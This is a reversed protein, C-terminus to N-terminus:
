RARLGGLAKILQNYLLVGIIITIYLAILALTAGEGLDFRIFAVRYIYWDLTETGAGGQTTGVIPDYIRILWMIRLLAVIVIFPRLLPLTLKRFTFWPTAGDVQAAEFADKPLGRLAALFVFISFPLWKWSEIFMITYLATGEEALFAIRPLGIWSLMANIIGTQPDLYYKWMLSMALPSVMLPLLCLARVTNQGRFEKNLFLAIGLGAVIEVSVCIVVVKATRWMSAWFLPDHLVKRYNNLGIFEPPRFFVAKNFSMYICYFLPYFAFMALFILLPILLFWKLYRENALVGAAAKKPYTTSLAETRLGQYNAM